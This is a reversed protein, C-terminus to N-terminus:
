RRAAATLLGAGILAGGGLQRLRTIFRPSQIREGVRASLNAYLTANIAGLVVFTAANLVLQPGAPANPTVFQPLFAVFFLITKPNAATVAFAHALKKGPRSPVLTVTPTDTSRIMGLGFWVLYAAGVYKLVTFATASVSLLAGLGTLSCTLAVADGLTVGLVLAWLSKRGESLGYSVVMLVTPGPIVLLVAAAAVFSLYLAASM